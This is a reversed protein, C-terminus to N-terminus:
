EQVVAYRNGNNMIVQSIKMIVIALHFHRQEGKSLTRIVRISNPMIIKNAFSNKKNYSPEKKTKEFLVIKKGFVFSIFSELKEIEIYLLEADESSTIESVFEKNIKVRGFGAIDIGTLNLTKYETIDSM